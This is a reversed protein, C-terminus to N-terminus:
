PGHFLERVRERLTTHIYPYSGVGHFCVDMSNLDKIKVKTHKTLVAAIVAYFLKEQDDSCLKKHITIDSHTHTQYTYEHIHTDKMVGDRQLYIKHALSALIKPKVVATNPAAPKGRINIFVEYGDSHTREHGMGLTVEITYTQKAHELTFTRTEFEFPGLTAAPTQRLKKRLGQVSPHHVPNTPTNRLYVIGAIKALTEKDLTRKLTSWLTADRLPAPSTPSAAASTSPRASNCSANANAGKGKACSLLAGHGVQLKRPPM